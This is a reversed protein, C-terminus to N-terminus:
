EKLKEDKPPDDPPPIRLIVRGHPPLGVALKPYYLGIGVGSLVLLLLWLVATGLFFALGDLGALYSILAALPISLIAAIYVIWEDAHLFSGCKPCEFGERRFLEKEM